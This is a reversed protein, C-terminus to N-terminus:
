ILCYLTSIAGARQREESNQFQKTSNKNLLPNYRNKEPLKSSGGSQRMMMLILIERFRLLATYIMLQSISGTIM